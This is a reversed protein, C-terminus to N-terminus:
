IVVPATFLSEFLAKTAIPDYLGTGDAVWLVDERGGEKDSSITLESGAGIDANATDAADKTLKLGAGLGYVKYLDDNGKVVAVTPEKGLDEATELSEPDNAFSALDVEHTYKPGYKGPALTVRAVNSDNLGRFLFGKKGAVLSLTVAKRLTQNRVAALLFSKPILVLDTTLGGAAPICPPLMGKKLQGCAAM